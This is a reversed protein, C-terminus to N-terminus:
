LHILIIGSPREPKTISPKTAKNILFRDSEEGVFLLDKKLEGEKKAM